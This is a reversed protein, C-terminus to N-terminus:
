YLVRRPDLVSVFEKLGNDEVISPPVLDKVIMNVLVQDM